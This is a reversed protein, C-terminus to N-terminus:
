NVEAESFSNIHEHKVNHLEVTTLILFIRSRGLQAELRDKISAKMEKLQELSTRLGPHAQAYDVMLMAREIQDVDQAMDWIPRLAEFPVGILTAGRIIQFVDMAERRERWTTDGM